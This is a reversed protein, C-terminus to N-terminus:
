IGIDAIKDGDGLKPNLSCVTLSAPTAKEPLIEMCKMPDDEKVTGRKLNQVDRLGCFIFKNHKM